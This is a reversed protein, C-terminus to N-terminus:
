RIAPDNETILANIKWTSFPLIHVFYDEDVIKFFFIILKGPIITM